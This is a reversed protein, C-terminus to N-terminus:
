LTCTLEWRYLIREFPSGLLARGHCWVCAVFYMYLLMNLCPVHSHFESFKMVNMNISILILWQRPINWIINEASSSLHTSMKNIFIIIQWSPMYKVLKYSNNVTLSCLHLSIANGKESSPTLYWDSIFWQFCPRLNRYIQCKLLESSYKKRMKWVNNVTKISFIYM